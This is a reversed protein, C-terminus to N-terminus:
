YRTQVLFSRALYLISIISRQMTGGNQSSSRAIRHQRKKCIGKPCPSAPVIRVSHQVMDRDTATEFHSEGMESIVGEESETHERQTAQLWIWRFEFRLICPLLLLMKCYKKHIGGPRM